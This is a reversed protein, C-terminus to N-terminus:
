RGSGSGTGAGDFADRAVDELRAGPVIEPKNVEGIVSIPHSEIATVMVSVHPDKLYERLRGAVTTELERATLGAVQIGGLLPM